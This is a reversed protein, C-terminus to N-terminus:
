RGCRWGRGRRGARHAAAEFGEAELDARLRGVAGRRRGPRAVGARLRRRRRRHALPARPRARRRRRARPRRPERRARSCTTSRCRASGRAAAAADAADRAFLAQVVARTTCPALSTTTRPPCRRAADRVGAVLAEHEAARAHQRAAAAAGADRRAAGGRGGPVRALRWVREGRQRRGVAARPAAAGVRLGVRQGVRARARGAARGARSRARAARALRADGGLLGGSLRPRRWDAVRRRGRRPPRGRPACLSVYLFLFAEAAARVADEGGDGRVAPPLLACRRACRRHVAAARRRRRLGRRRCHSALSRQALKWRCTTRLSALRLTVEADAADEATALTVECRLDIAIAISRTGYVVAHEGILIAKGPASATSTLAMISTHPPRRSTHIAAGALSRANRAHVLAAVRRTHRLRSRLRWSRSCGSARRRRRRRPTCRGYVRSSTPRYTSRGRPSRDCSKTARARRTARRRFSADRM